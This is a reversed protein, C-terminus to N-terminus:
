VNAKGWTTREAKKESQSKQRQQQIIAMAERCGARASCQTKEERTPM